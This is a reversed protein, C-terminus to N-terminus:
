RLDEAIELSNENRIENVLDLVNEPEGTLAAREVADVLREVFEKSFTTDSM